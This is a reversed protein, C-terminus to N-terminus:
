CILDIATVEVRPYCCNLELNDGARGAEEGEHSKTPQARNLGRAQTPTPGLGELSATSAM